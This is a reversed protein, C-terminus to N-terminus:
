FSVKIGARFFQGDMAEPEQELSLPGKLNGYDAAGGCGSAEM